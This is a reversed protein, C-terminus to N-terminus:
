KKFYQMLSKKTQFVQLLVSGEHYAHQLVLRHGQDLFNALEPFDERRELINETIDMSLDRNVVKTHLGSRLAWTEGYMQVIPELLSADISEEEMASLNSNDTL